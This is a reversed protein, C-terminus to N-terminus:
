TKDIERDKRKTHTHYPLPPLAHLACVVCVCLMYLELERAQIAEAIHEVGVHHAHAHSLLCLYGTHKGITDVSAHVRLVQVCTMGASKSQPTARSKSQAM